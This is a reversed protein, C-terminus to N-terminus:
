LRRPYILAEKDASYRREGAIEVDRVVNVLVWKANKGLACM